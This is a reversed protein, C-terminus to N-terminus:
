IAGIVHDIKKILVTIFMAFKGESMQNQDETENDFHDLYDILDDYELDNDDYLIHVIDKQISKIEKDEDNIIELDNLSEQISRNNFNLFISLNDINQDLISQKIFNIFETYSLDKMIILDPSDEDKLRIMNNLIQVQSTPVHKFYTYIITKKHSTSVTTNKIITNLVKRILILNLLSIITKESLEKWLKMKIEDDDSKKISKKLEKLEQLLPVNISKILEDFQDLELVEDDIETEFSAEETHYFSDYVKYLLYSATAITTGYKIVTQINKNFNSSKNGAMNIDDEEIKHTKM